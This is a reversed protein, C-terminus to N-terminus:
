GIILYENTAPKMKWPKGGAKAFIQLGINSLSYKISFENKVLEKTLVQCPIHANTFKHKLLYYLKDDDEETKSNTILIPIVNEGILKIKEIEEEIIVSTFAEIATGKIVDNSFPVRFLKLMGSFT